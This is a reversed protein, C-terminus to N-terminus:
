KPFNIIYNLCEDETNAGFISFGFEDIVVWEFDCNCYSNNYNKKIEM